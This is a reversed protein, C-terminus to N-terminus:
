EKVPEMPLISDQKDIIKPDTQKEVVDRLSLVTTNLMNTQAVLDKTISKNTENLKDVTREVVKAAVEGAANDFIAHVNFQAVL